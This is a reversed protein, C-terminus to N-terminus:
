ATINNALCAPPSLQMLSAQHHPPPLCIAQAACFTDAESIEMEKEHTAMM